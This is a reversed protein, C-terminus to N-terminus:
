CPDMKFVRSVKIGAKRSIERIKEELTLDDIPTFKNFLPEIVYPSIYLVFLSFVLFFVWVWLWWYEPSSSVLWMGVSILIAILITSILLSKIFDTIWLRPTMTNFGFRNEIKFTSYLSFPISIFNEAYYLILFFALGSVISNWGLSSVWSSYVNLLGGFLFVILVINGFISNIFAFRSNEVTYDRTKKLLREDIHGEFEPPIDAGHKKLYGLNLAKLWYGFLVCFLYALSIILLYTNM